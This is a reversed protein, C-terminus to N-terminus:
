QAVTANLSQYTNYYVMTLPRYFMGKSVYQLWVVKIEIWMKQFTFSHCQM